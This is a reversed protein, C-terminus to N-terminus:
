TAGFDPRADGINAAMVLISSPVPRNGTGPRVSINLKQFSKVLFGKPRTLGNIRLVTSREAPAIAQVNGGNGVKVPTLFDRRSPKSRKVKGLYWARSLECTRQGVGGCESPTIYGKPPNGAAHAGPSIGLTLIGAVTMTSLLRSILKLQTKM